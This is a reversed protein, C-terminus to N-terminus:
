QSETLSSASAGLTVPVPSSSELAWDRFWWVKQRRGFFVTQTDVDTDMHLWAHTRTRTCSSPDSDYDGKGLKVYEGGLPLWISATMKGWTGPGKSM